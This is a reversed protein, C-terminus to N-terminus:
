TREFTYGINHYEHILIKNVPNYNVEFSKPFFKPYNSKQLVIRSYEIIAQPKKSEYEKKLKLIKANNKRQNQLFKLKRKKWNKIQYEYEKKVKQLEQEYRKRLPPIFNKIFSKKPIDPMNPIPEPFNSRDILKEWNIKNDNYLAKKLLNKSLELSQRARKTQEIALQMKKQKKWINDWKNSLEYAKHIVEEESKGQVIKYKNLGDHWVEIKYIPIGSSSYHVYIEGIVSM